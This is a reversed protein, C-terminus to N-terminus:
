RDLDLRFVRVPVGTPTVDDRLPSFGLRLALGSSAVNRPDIVAVLHDRDLSTRAWEIWASSAEAALGRHQAHAALVYGLEVEDWQPWYHLGVRGLFAGTARDLVASQGYGRDRWVAAFRGAQAAIAEPTLADGGVYRAVEPDSYLAVLDAVHESSLPPLLLRETSLESV